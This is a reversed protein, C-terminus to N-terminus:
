SSRMEPSSIEHSVWASLVSLFGEQILLLSHGYFLLFLDFLFTLLCHKNSVGACYLDTFFSLKPLHYNLGACRLTSFLIETSDTFIIKFSAIQFM